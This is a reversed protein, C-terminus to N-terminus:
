ENVGKLINELYKDWDNNKVFSFAEDGLSSITTKSLNYNKELINKLENMDKYINVFKKNKYDNFMGLKPALIPTKQSFSLFATGSTLFSEDSYNLLLFDIKSFFKPIDEDKIFKLNLEINSYESYKKLLFNKYEESYPKGSVIIRHKNNKFIDLLEEINKYPRIQGFYGYTIEENKKKDLIEYNGIYSGHPAFIIKEKSVQYNKLVYSKSYESHVIIFDSKYVLKNYLKDSFINKGDHKGKNHMTWILKKKSKSIKNILFSKLIYSLYRKFKNKSDINEFWNLHIIEIKQSFVKKLFDYKGDYSIINFNKSLIEKLNKIYLNAKNENPYLLLNKRKIL